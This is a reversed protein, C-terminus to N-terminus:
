RKNMTSVVHRVYSMRTSLKGIEGGIVVGVEM